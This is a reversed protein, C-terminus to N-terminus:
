LQLNEDLVLPTNTSSGHKVGPSYESFIFYGANPLCRGVSAGDITGMPDFISNEKCSLCQDYGVGKCNQCSIHCPDCIQPSSEFYGTLCFPHCLNIDTHTFAEDDCELCDKLLASTCSKCHPTCLDCEEENIQFTRPPCPPAVCTGRSKLLLNPLECSTCARSGFRNCSKCSSHCDSCIGTSSEFTKEECEEVCRKDPTLKFEDNCL